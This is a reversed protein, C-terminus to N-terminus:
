AVEAPVAGKLANWQASQRVFEEIRQADGTLELEFSADLETIRGRLINISLTRDLRWAELLSRALSQDSFRVRMRASEKRSMKM